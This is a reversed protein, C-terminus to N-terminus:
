QLEYRQATERTVHYQEYITSGPAEHICQSHQYGAADAPAEFIHNDPLMAKDEFVSQSTKTTMTRRRRARLFCFCASGLVTVGLLAGVSIGAIAGGTLRSPTTGHLEDSVGTTTSIISSSTTTIDSRRHVLQILPASVTFSDTVATSTITSLQPTEEQFYVLDSMTSSVSTETVTLPANITGTALGAGECRVTPFSTSTAITICTQAGAIACFYGSSANTKFCLFM